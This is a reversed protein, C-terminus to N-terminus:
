KVRAVKTKFNNIESNSFSGVSMLENNSNIFLSSLGSYAFGNEKYCREKVGDLTFEVLYYNMYGGFNGASCNEMYLGGVYVKNNYVIVASGWDDADPSGCTQSWIEYGTEDLKAVFIDSQCQGNPGVTGTAYIYNDHVVIKQISRNTSITNITAGTTFDLILMQNYDNALYYHNTESSFHQTYTKSTGWHKHWIENLGNDFKYIDTEYSSSGATIIIEDNVVMLNPPTLYDLTTREISSFDEAIISIDGTDNYSSIMCRGDSLVVFDHVKESPLIFEGILNLSADMKMMKYDMTGSIEACIYVLGTPTEIFKTVEYDSFESDFIFKTELTLSNCASPEPEPETKICSTFPM